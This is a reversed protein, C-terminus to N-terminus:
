LTVSATYDANTHSIQCSVEMLSYIQVTTEIYCDILATIIYHITVNVIYLQSNISYPGHSKFIHIYIYLLM